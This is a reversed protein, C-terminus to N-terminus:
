SGLLFRTGVDNQHEAYNIFENIISTRIGNNFLLKFADVPIKGDCVDTLGNFNKRYNERMSQKWELGINENKDDTAEWSHMEELKETSTM